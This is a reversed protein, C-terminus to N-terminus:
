SKKRGKRSHKAFGKNGASLNDSELEHLYDKLTIFDGRRIAARGQKIARVEDKTPEVTPFRNEFYQRLAERVLESSTRSEAKRVAEFQQAFAPPLSITMTKTIRM